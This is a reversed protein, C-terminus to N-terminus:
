PKKYKDIATSDVTKQIQENAIKSVLYAKFFEDKEKREAKVSNELTTIRVEYASCESKYDIRQGTIVGGLVFTIVYLCYAFPTQAIQKLPIKQLSEQIDAM